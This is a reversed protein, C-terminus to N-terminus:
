CKWPGPCPYLHFDSPRLCLSEWTLAGKTCQSPDRIHTFPYSPRCVWTVDGTVRIGVGNFKPRFTFVDVTYVMRLFISWAFVQFPHQCLSNQSGTGPAHNLIPHPLLEWQVHGRLGASEGDLLSLCLWLLALAHGKLSHSSLCSDWKSSNVLSVSQLPRWGGNKCEM